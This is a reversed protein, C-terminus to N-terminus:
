IQVFPSGGTAVPLGRAAINSNGGAGGTGSVQIGPILRLIEAESTPNFNNIQDASISTVSVSSNLQTKDGGSATVVIEDLTTVEAATDATATAPTAAQATATAGVALSTAALIRLLLMDNNSHRM